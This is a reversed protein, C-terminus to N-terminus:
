LHLPFKNVFLYDNPLKANGGVPPVPWALMTARNPPKAISQM